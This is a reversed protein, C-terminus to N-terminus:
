GRPGGARGDHVLRDMEEAAARAQAAARMQAGRQELITEIEARTRVGPVMGAVQEPVKGVLVGIQTFTVAAVTLLAAGGGLAAAKELSAALRPNDMAMDSLADAWMPTIVETAAFGLVPDVLSLGASPLGLTDTVAKYYRAKSDKVSKVSKPAAPASKGGRADRRKKRFTGDKNLSPNGEKDVAHIEPDFIEPASEDSM